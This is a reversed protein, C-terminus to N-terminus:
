DRNMEAILRMGKLTLHADYSHIRKSHATFLRGLGGTAIIHALPGVEAAIGDILGDIMYVYGAVAGAQMATVTSKGVLSKPWVPEIRPLKATNRVLAELSTMVGPAIVGGEFSGDPGVLDFSTATGFDVVLSPCGYLEKAAVANVVRDAGLSAPETIKISM